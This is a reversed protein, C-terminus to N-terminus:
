CVESGRQISCQIHQNSKGTVVSVMRVIRSDEKILAASMLQDLQVAVVLVIKKM